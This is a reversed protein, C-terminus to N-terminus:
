TRLVHEALKGVLGLTMHDPDDAQKCQKAIESLAAELETIRADRADIESEFWDRPWSANCGEAIAKRVKDWTLMTDEAVM